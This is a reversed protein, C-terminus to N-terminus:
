PSSVSTGLIKSYFSITSGIILLTSLIIMGIVIWIGAPLSISRGCFAGFLEVVIVTIGGYVGVMIVWSLIRFTEYVCWKGFSLCPQNDMSDNILWKWRFLPGGYLWLLLWCAHSPTDVKFRTLGGIVGSVVAVLVMGNWLKSHGVKAHADDIPINVRPYNKKLWEKFEEIDGNEKLDRKM